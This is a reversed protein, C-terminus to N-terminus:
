PLRELIEDLKQKIQEGVMYTMSSEDLSEVASKLTELEEKVIKIEKIVQNLKKEIDDLSPM